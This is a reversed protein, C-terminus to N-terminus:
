LLQSQSMDVDRTGGLYRDTRRLPPPQRPTRQLEDTPISARVFVSRFPWASNGLTFPTVVWVLLRLDANDIHAAVQSALAVSGLVLVIWGPVILLWTMLRRNEATM